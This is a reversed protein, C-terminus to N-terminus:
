VSFSDNEEGLWYIILQAILEDGGHEIEVRFIFFIHVDVYVARSTFDYGAKGDM